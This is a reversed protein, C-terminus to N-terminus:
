LIVNNIRCIFYSLGKKELVSRYMELDHLGYEM